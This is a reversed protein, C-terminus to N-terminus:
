ISDNIELWNLFSKPYINLTLDRRRKVYELLFEKLTVRDEETPEYELGSLISQQIDAPLEGMDKRINDKTEQDLIGINMFPPHQVFMVLMQHNKYQKYFELFNILTLNSVTCRFVFNINNSILRNLRDQTTDWSIGYRNFESFKGVNEVSVRLSIKDNTKLLDLFQTFRSLSSNLGTSIQISEVNPNNNALTIIKDLFNNLLPEGGTIIIKKAHPILSLIEGDLLVQDESKIINKQKQYEEYDRSQQAFRPEDFYTFKYDGHEKLEKSWLTSYERCCYSCACNCDRTLLIELIEPYTNIETHTKETANYTLRQSVLGRDEAAWCGECRDTRENRLMKQRDSVDEPINFIDGPHDKIRAFDIPVSKTACCSLTVKNVADIRLFKFKYNCYYDRSM